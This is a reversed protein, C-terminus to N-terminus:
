DVAYERSLTIVGVEVTVLLSYRTVTEACREGEGTHRRLQVKANPMRDRVAVLYEYQKETATEADEVEFDVDCMEIKCECVDSAKIKTYREEGALPAFVQERIGDLIEEEALLGDAFRAKQSDTGHEAVWDALQKERQEAEQQKREAEMKDHEKIAAQNEKYKRLLEQRMEEIEATHSKLAAVEEDNCDRPDEAIIPLNYRPFEFGKLEQTNFFEAPTKDLFEKIRNVRNAEAMEDAVKKKAIRAQLVQRVVDADAHGVSIPSYYTAEFVGDHQHEALMEREEQTLAAPDIEVTKYGYDEKGELLAKTQDIYVVVKM